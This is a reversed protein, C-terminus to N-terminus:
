QKNRIRRYFILLRRIVRSGIVAYDAITIASFIGSAIGSVARPWASRKFNSINRNLLSKEIEIQITTVARQYRLEDLTYGHWKRSSNTQLKDM